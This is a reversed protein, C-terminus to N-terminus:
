NVYLTGRENKQRYDRERGRRCLVGLYGLYLGSFVNLGSFNILSAKNKGTTKISCKRGEERERMKQDSAVFCVARNRRSDVEGGEKRAANVPLLRLQFLMNCQLHLVPLFFFFLFPFCEKRCCSLSEPRQQQKTQGVKTNTPQSAPQNVVMLLLLLSM